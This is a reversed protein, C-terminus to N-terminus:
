LADVAFLFPCRKDLFTDQNAMYFISTQFLSYNELYIRLYMKVMSIMYNRLWIMVIIIM